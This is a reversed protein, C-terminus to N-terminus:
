SLFEQRRDDPRRVQAHKRWGIVGLLGLVGAGILVLASPEPVAATGFASTGSTRGYNALVITLDNIDVTGDGTFDGTGWNTGNSQGYHALVITLDNIDVQGDLNADGSLAHPLALVFGLSSGNYTGYGAIQGADNIGDAVNLVWGSPMVSAALTNLDNAGISLGYFPVSGTTWLFAHNITGNYAYGVVVDYKNLGSAMSYQYGSPIGLDTMAAYGGAGCVDLFAHLDPSPATSLYSDGVVDGNDNIAKGKSSDMGSLAGLDTVGGSSTRVFAHFNDSDAACEAYGTVTGASNIALAKGAGSAGLVGGLDLM